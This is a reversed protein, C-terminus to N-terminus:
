TTADTEKDAWEGGLIFVMEDLSRARNYSYILGNYTEGAEDAAWAEVEEFVKGSEFTVKILNIRAWDTIKYDAKGTAENPIRVPQPEALRVLFAQNECSDCNHEDILKPM